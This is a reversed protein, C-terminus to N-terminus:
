LSAGPFHLAKKVRAYVDEVAGEGDVEVLTGANRCHEIVPTTKERYIQMRKRVIAEKADDARGEAKARGIIRAVASKGDVFLALCRYDRKAQKMLADFDMLQDMDRPVGDFLFKTGETASEVAERVVQMIIGHPVLQGHDISSKITNGLATGSAALARLEAGAEFIRYGFEAALKKAQTGKGSGQIGFFVLDM